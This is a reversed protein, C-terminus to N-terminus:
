ADELATRITSITYDTGLRSAVKDFAKLYHEKAIQALEKCHKPFHYKNFVEELAEDEETGAGKDCSLSYVERELYAVRTELTKLADKM